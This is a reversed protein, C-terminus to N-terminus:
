TRIAQVVPVAVSSFANSRNAFSANQRHRGPRSRLTKYLIVFIYIKEYFAKCVKLSTYLLVCSIFICVLMVPPVTIFFNSVAARAIAIASERTAQPPEADLAGAAEAGAELVDAELAAAEASSLRTSFILAFPLSTTPVSAWYAGNSNLSSFACNAPQSM